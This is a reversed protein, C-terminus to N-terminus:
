ITLHNETWYILANIEKPLEILKNYIEKYEEESLLKRIKAKQIWDLSEYVSGRANYYFKQKDKKHYRGFGEAINASISDIARILQQGITYRALSDWTTILDWLTNSLYFSTKYAMLDKLHLFKQGTMKMVM